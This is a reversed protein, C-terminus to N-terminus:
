PHTSQFLMISNDIKFVLDCRERTRPNFSHGCRCYQACVTAGKVPAHISVVGSPDSTYHSPTAGKVPAHISVIDSM